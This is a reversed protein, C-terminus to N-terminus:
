PAFFLNSLDLWVYQLIYAYNHKSPQADLLVYNVLQEMELVVQQRLSISQFEDKLWDAMM